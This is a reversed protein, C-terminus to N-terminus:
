AGSAEGHAGDGGFNATTERANLGEEAVVILLDLGFTGSASAQAMVSEPGLGVRDLKFGPASVASVFVMRRRQVEVVQGARYLQEVDRLSGHLGPV